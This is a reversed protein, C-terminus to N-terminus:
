KLITSTMWQWFRQVNKIEAKKIAAVDLVKMLTDIKRKANEPFSYFLVTADVWQEFNDGSKIM